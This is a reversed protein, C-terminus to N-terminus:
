LLKEIFFEVVDKGSSDSIGLAPAYVLAETSVKDAKDKLAKAHLPHHNLEDENTPIGGEYHNFVFFPPSDKTMKEMFDLEERIKHQAFLDIGDASKLGFVRAIALLEEPNQYPPIGILEPWRLIDYTSQTSFAAACVIKTSERLIPDENEADAMDDSFALWLSTGAGASGGSCAIREKDINYRNANARIYQLCRKSDYMSALIGYPPEFMYRYNISAISIGANLLRIWDESDYYRSKDGGVFGGGHIFIALPTPKESDALWIDFTNREHEGYRENAFTARVGAANIAEPYENNETM